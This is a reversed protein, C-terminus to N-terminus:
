PTNVLQDPIPTRCCTNGQDILEVVAGEASHRGPGFTSRAARWQKVQATCADESLDESTM